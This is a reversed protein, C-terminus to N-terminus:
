ANQIMRDIRPPMESPIEPSFRADLRLLKEFRVLRVPSNPLRNWFGVCVGFWCVSIVGISLEVVVPWPVTVGIM